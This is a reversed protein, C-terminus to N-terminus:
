LSGVLYMYRLGNFLIQCAINVILIIRDHLRVYVPRTNVLFTNRRRM